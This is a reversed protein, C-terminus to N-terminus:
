CPLSQMSIIYDNASGDWTCDLHYESHMEIADKVDHMTVTPFEQKLDKYYLSGLEDIQDTRNDIYDFLDSDNFQANGYAGDNLKTRNVHESIVKYKCVRLKGYGSEDPVSVIDSPCYEVIMLKGDSSAWDNAYEYSGVHFGSSCGNNPNDDVDSRHMSLEAGVHNSFKGSYKDHYDDRVGKYGILKGDATMPMGTHAIFNYAQNRCHYSPNNQLREIFRCWRSIDTVGESVLDTLKKAEATHLERGNYFVSNNKVVVKGDSIVNLVHTEDLLELVEEEVGRQLAELLPKYNVRDSTVEIPKNNIRDYVFISNPGLAYDINNM